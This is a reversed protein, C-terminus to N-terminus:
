KRARAKTRRSQRLEARRAALFKTVLWGPFLRQRGGGRPGQPVGVRVAGLKGSSEWRQVCRKTVGALESVESTTLLDKM